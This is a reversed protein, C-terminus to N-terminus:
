IGIMNRAGSFRRHAEDLTLCELVKLEAKSIRVWSEESSDNNRNEETRDGASPGRVDQDEADVILVYGNSKRETARKKAQEIAHNPIQTLWSGIELFSLPKTTAHFLKVKM